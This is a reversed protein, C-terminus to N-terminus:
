KNVTVYENWLTLCKYRYPKMESEAPQNNQIWDASVNKIDFSFIIWFLMNKVSYTM